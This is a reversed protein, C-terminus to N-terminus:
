GLAVLLINDNIGLSYVYGFYNELTSLFVWLANPWWAGKWGSWIEVKSEGYSVPLSEMLFIKKLIEPLRPYLMVVWFASIGECHWLRWRVHKNVLFPFGVSFSFAGRFWADPVQHFLGFTCTVYSPCCELLLFFVAGDNRDQVPVPEACWHSFM